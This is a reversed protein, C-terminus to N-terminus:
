SFADLEDELRLRQEETLQNAARGEAERSGATDAADDVHAKKLRRSRRLMVVVFTLAFSVMLAAPLGWSLGKDPNARLDDYTWSEGASNTANNEDVYYRFIQEETAGSALLVRFRPFWKRRVSCGLQAQSLVLGREGECTTKTTGKLHEYAAADYILRQDWAPDVERLRLLVEVKARGTQKWADSQESMLEAVLQRDSDASPCACSAHALSDVRPQPGDSCGCRLTALVDSLPDVGEAPASFGTPQPVLARAPTPWLAWGLLAAGAVLSAWTALSPGSSERAAAPQPDREPPPAREPTRTLSIMTRSLWRPTLCILIGLLLLVGGTWLFLVLPFVVTLLNIVPNALSTMIPTEMSPQIALYLDEWFMSTIAAETTPVQSKPYFRVQPKLHIGTRSDIVEVAGTDGNYEAYLITEPVSVAALREKFRQYGEDDAFALSIRPSGPTVEVTAGVSSAPGLRSRARRIMRAAAMPVVRLLGEDSIRYTIRRAQPDELELTFEERFTQALYVDDVFALRAAEDAFRVHMKPSDLKTEVHFTGSDRESLLQTLEDVEREAVTEGSRIVTITAETYAAGIEEDWAHKPKAFTLQYDAVSMEDGLSLLREPNQTKFFKGTFAVFLLVVGVHVIFGGYRRPAKFTLAVMSAFYGDNSKKQRIRAGRHFERAVSWLTFLSLFYAFFVYWSAADLAHWWNQFAASMPIEFRESIHSIKKYVFYAGITTTVFLSGFWPGALNTRINKRTARRWSIVPGAAMLFLLALGLPPLVKNFWPEGLTMAQTLFPEPGFIPGLVANYVTVLENYAARIGELESLKPFVTGWLVIFCIGVLLVNQLVFFSERSWFSEIKAEGKLARWRIGLLIASVAALVALYWIFYEALTSNAFAHISDILQSRTLFTGFITLFFTLCVLVANWRKLMGRREQIMVSHLFATATFWPLAGANEVPDWMWWFGWGIEEYAWLMGLMLGVSLFTFSVLTWVRTDKIWQDDLKGTILAAMGFAFPITFTIYGILLSPPHFAMVPNQLLPNLGQGDRPGSSTMFTEFPSSEFVMLIYFFFICLMLIGTVWGLYVPERKKRNVHIAVSSFISLSTTWFLLAGKEGGWFAAMLYLTPMDRDSYTAIYKNAFDHTLFGHLLVLAMAVSLGTSAYLGWRAGHILAANRSVAGVIATLASTLTVFFTVLLLLQGIDQM